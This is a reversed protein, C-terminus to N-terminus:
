NFKNNNFCSDWELIHKTMHDEVFNSLAARKFDNNQYFQDCMQAEMFTLDNNKYCKNNIATLLHQDRQLALKKLIGEELDSQVREMADKVQIVAKPDMQWSASSNVTSNLSKAKSAKFFRSETAEAM